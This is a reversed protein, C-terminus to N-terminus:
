DPNEWFYQWNRIRIKIITKAMILRSKGIKTIKYRKKKKKKKLKKTRIDILITPYIYYENRNDLISHEAKCKKHSHLILYIAYM